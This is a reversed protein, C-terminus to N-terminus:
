IKSVPQRRYFKPAKGTQKLVLKSLSSEHAFGITACIDALRQGAHLGEIAQHLRWRQRWTQFSMGTDRWIMRRLTRSSVCCSQALETLNLDPKQQLRILWRSHNPYPLTLAQSTELHKLEHKLCALLNKPIGQQWHTNFPQETVKQILARLWPSSTVPQQSSTTAEPRCWLAEFRAAHLCDVKHPTHAPIHICHGEPLLFRRNGLWLQLCGSGVHLWQDLAHQHWQGQQSGFDASVAVMLTEHAEPDFCASQALEPM